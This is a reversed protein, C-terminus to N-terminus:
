LASLNFNAFELDNQARKLMNNDLKVAQRLNNYVMNNNNTRAGLVATLYFTTADPNKVGALTNKAKSYDKNLIQALAANNTKSDGFARVASNYDGQKLYYVGLADGLADVGAANGFKSSADKYNQNLLSVLGLNMQSEPANPALKAAQAFNAAAAEYDKDIYQCMGLNNYTRYDNPYLEVAKDYIQLRKNNDDTLTAAYLLEDVTLAKPNSLFINMIEEDSKGIVDISATIRSYRLQPLITEALQDFVSSLNRIEKERQEPDKYMSLVSLILDKDQINSAAVLKQFGEWDQPTFNATLEGFETINDKKLSKQMYALTNKERNEALKTNLKVGGDPSATSKINIEKIERRSDDNAEVLEKHLDLMSKSGLEGKRLNAQNILFKIDADYKENIIRQFKDNAIAPTVTGADAIAATAVVGEAVKVRPLAYQKNGQRVTFALTLDSRNMEPNYVYQVPITVSGGNNYNIVPNNGRVKEGQFTYPASAVEMGNFELYPTVTVEANKQFFKAPINGTVTAPVKDGVVELPNPNVSFYDSKFQNMKKGCGTLMVTGALIISYCVKSNM